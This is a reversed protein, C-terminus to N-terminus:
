RVELPTPPEAASATNLMPELTALIAAENAHPKAVLTPRVAGAAAHLATRPIEHVATATTCAAMALTPPVIDAAARPTSPDAAAVTNATAEQTPTPKRGMALSKGTKPSQNRTWARELKWQPRVLPPLSAVAM